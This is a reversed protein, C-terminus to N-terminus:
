LKNNKKFILYGLVAFILAYIIPDLILSGILGAPFGFSIVSFIPGLVKCATGQGSWCFYLVGMLSAVGAFLGAELGIIIYKIEERFFDPKPKNNGFDGSIKNKKFLLYFLFLSLIIFFSSMLLNKPFYCNYYGGPNLLLFPLCWLNFVFSIATLLVLSNLIIALGKFIKNM